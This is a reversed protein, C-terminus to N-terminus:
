CTAPCSECARSLRVTYSESSEMAVKFVQTNGGHYLADIFAKSALVAAPDGELPFLDVALLCLVNPPVSLTKQAPSSM